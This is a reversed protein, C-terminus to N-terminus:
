DQRYTIESGYLDRLTQVIRDADSVTLRGFDTNKIIKSMPIELIDQCRAASPKRLGAEHWDQLLVYGPESRWINSTVKLSLVTARQDDVSLIIVPRNKSRHPNDAYSYNAFWVDFVRPKNMM